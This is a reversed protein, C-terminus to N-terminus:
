RLGSRSDTSDGTDRWAELIDAYETPNGFFFSDQDLRADAHGEGNCYRLLLRVM